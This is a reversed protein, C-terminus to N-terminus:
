TPLDAGDATAYSPVRPGRCLHGFLAREGVIVAKPSRGRNWERRGEGGRQSKTGRERREGGGRAKEQVRTLRKVWKLM